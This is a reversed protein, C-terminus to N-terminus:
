SAEKKPPNVKLVCESSPVVRTIKRIVNKTKSAEVAKNNLHALVELSWM